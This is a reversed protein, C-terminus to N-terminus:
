GGSGGLRRQAAYDTLACQTGKDGADGQIINTDAAKRPLRLCSISINCVTHARTHVVFVCSKKKKASTGSWKIWKLLM